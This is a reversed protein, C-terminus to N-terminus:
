EELGKVLTDLLAGNDDHKYEWFMIGGLGREKIFDVKHALSEPDEYSIFTTSDPSWLYPAKASDDWYRDFSRQNIYDSRLEEYAYAKTARNVPQYLGSDTAEVGTWGRGYFAVGLVIKDGPIGADLHRKIATDSNKETEGIYRSQYLGTHHGTTKSGGTYFDYTMVNIFDLYSHVAEMETHEFYRRSGSTAITLLYNRGRQERKADLHERITRLLLTFNERDEERFKIGPGPQGPYEWDLDVGDLDYDSIFQVINQALRRRSAPTLAADSFHDAGWGGVSLLIKLKPNRNKLAILEGMHAVSQEKPFFVTGEEDIKAFAYNLHTLKTPNINSIDTRSSAYGVVRYSGTNPASTGKRGIQCSTFSFAILCLLVGCLIVKKLGPGATTM